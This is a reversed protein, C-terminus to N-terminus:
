GESVATPHYCKCIRARSDHPMNPFVCAMSAAARERWWHSVLFQPDHNGGPMTAMYSGKNASGPIIIKRVVEYNPADAVIKGKCRMELGHFGYRCVPDVHDEHHHAHIILM